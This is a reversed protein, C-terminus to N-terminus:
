LQNPKNLQLTKSIPDMATLTVNEPALGDRTNTVHSRIPDSVSPGSSTLGNASMWVPEQVLEALDVRAKADLDTADEAVTGQGFGRVTRVAKGSTLKAEIERVSVQAVTDDTFTLPTDFGAKAFVLEIEATAEDWFLEAEDDTPLSTANLTKKAIEPAYRFALVRTANYHAIAM